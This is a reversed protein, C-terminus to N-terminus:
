TLAIRASHLNTQKLMVQIHAIQSQKESVLASCSLDDIGDADTVTGTFNLLDGATMNTHPTLMTHPSAHYFDMPLNLSKSLGDVDRVNFLIQGEGDIFTGDLRLRFKYFQLTSDSSANLFYM